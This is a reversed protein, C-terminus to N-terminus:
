QRCYIGGAGGPTGYCNMSGPTRGDGRLLEAGNRLQQQQQISQQYAAQSNQADAQQLCQSFQVTGSQFGYALCQKAFPSPPQPPPPPNAKIDAVKAEYNRMLEAYQAEYEQTSKFKRSEFKTNLRVFLDYLNDGLEITLKKLPDADSVNNGVGGQLYGLCTALKSNNTQYNERYCKLYENFYKDLAPSQAYVSQVLLASILLYKKM